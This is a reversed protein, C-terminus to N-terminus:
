PSPPEIQVPTDFDRYQHDMFHGPGRMEARRVLGDSDVWLRYWYPREMFEQLALWCARGLLDPEARLHAELQKGCDAQSIVDLDGILQIALNSRHSEGGLWAIVAWASGYIERMRRVQRAREDLDGQNICIADVWLKLGGEFEAEKCFAQLAEEM